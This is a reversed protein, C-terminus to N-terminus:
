RAPNGLPDTNVSRPRYYLGKPREPDTFPRYKHLFTQLIPLKENILSVLEFFHNNTSELLQWWDQESKLFSHWKLLKISSHENISRRIEWNNPFLSFNCIQNVLDTNWVDGPRYFTQIKDLFLDTNPRYNAKFLNYPYKPVRCIQKTM